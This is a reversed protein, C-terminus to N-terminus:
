RAPTPTSRPVHRRQQAHLLASGDVVIPPFEMLVKGGFRWKFRYPPSVRTPLYGPHATDYHYFPWDVGAAGEAAAEAKFEVEDGKQRRRHPEEARDPGPAVAAALIATVAAAIPLWRRRHRESIFMSQKRPGMGPPPTSEPVASLTAM